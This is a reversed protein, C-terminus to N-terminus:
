GGLINAADEARGLLAAHYSVIVEEGMMMMMVDEGDADGGGKQCLQRLRALVAEGAKRRCDHLMETYIAIKPDSGASSGTAERSPREGDDHSTADVIAQM